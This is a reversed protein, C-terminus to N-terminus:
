QNQLWEAWKRKAKLIDAPTAMPGPGFHKGTITQLADEAAWRVTQAKDDLREILLPAAQQDKIRGLLEIAAVRVRRDSDSLVSRLAPALPRIQQTPKTRLENLISRKTERGGSTLMQGVRQTNEDSTAVPARRSPRTRRTRSSHLPAEMRKKLADAAAQRVDADPSQMLKELLDGAQPDPHVALARIAAQRALKGSSRICAEVYRLPKSRIRQEFVNLACERIRRDRHDAYRLLMAPQVIRQLKSQFGKLAANRIDRAPHAALGELDGLSLRSTSSEIVPICLRGIQPSQNVLQVVESGRASAIYQRIGAKAASRVRSDSSKLADQLAPMCRELGNPGASSLLAPLALVAAKRISESSSSLFPFLESLQQSGYLVRILRAAEDQSAVSKSCAAAALPAVWPATSSRGIRRLLAQLVRLADPHAQGKNWNNNDKVAAIAQLVFPVAASGAALLLSEARARYVPIKDHPFEAMSDPAINAPYVYVLVDVADQLLAAGTNASVSGDLVRPISSVVAGQKSRYPGGAVPRHLTDGLGGRGAQMQGDLWGNAKLKTEVGTKWAEPDTGFKNAGHYGDGLASMVPLLGLSWVHACLVSAWVHRVTGNRTRCM